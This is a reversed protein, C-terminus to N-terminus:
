LDKKNDIQNEYNWYGKDVLIKQLYEPIEIWFKKIWQLIRFFLIETIDKSWWEKPWYIKIKWLVDEIWVKWNILDKLEEENNLYNETYKSLSKETIIMWDKFLNSFHSKINPLLKEEIEIRKEIPINYGPRSIIKFYYTISFWRNKIIEILENIEEWNWWKLITEFYELAPTFEKKTLFIMKVKNRNIFSKLKTQKNIQQFEILDIAKFDENGM